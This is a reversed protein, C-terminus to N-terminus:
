VSVSRYATFQEQIRQVQGPTFESLCIDYSYDMFNHIPDRGPKGPCTDPAIIPCGHTQNLQAPTDFVMDGDGDCGDQFTHYLGLWHGVEHTLTRGRNYPASSGGPVTSYRIVVGDNIPENQYADPFTAYGLLESSTINTLGTSYINLVSADGKRLKQKMETQYVFEPSGKEDGAWNFWTENTTYKRSVLEFSVGTSQYDANLVSISDNIQSVPIHGEELAAFFEANALFCFYTLSIRMCKGAQIVHWYVPIVVSFDSKLTKSMKKKAIFSAEAVKIQEKSIATSCRMVRNENSAASAPVLGIAMTAFATFFLM